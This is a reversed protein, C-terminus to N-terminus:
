PSDCVPASYQLLFQLLVWHNHCLWYQSRQTGSYMLTYVLVSTMRVSMHKLLYVTHKFQV